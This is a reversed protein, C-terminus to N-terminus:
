KRNTLRLLTNFMHCKTTESQDIKIVLYFFTTGGHASGWVNVYQAEGELTCQRERLARDALIGVQFWQM